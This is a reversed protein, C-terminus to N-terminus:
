AHTNRNKLSLNDLLLAVDNQITKYSYQEIAQHSNSSLTNWLNGDRYLALIRTVYEEKTNAILVNKGDALDMGEAGISSTIVPLRYALSQGIKGKMGAGFRLPAVFLRHTQFYDSVDAVYGPVFVRDSALQFVEPTPKSGLLTLTLEPLERWVEPMIERVLWQVADINPPHDYAGVFLLGK